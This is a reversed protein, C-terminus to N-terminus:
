PRVRWLRASAVQARPWQCGLSRPEDSRRLRRIARPPPEGRVRRSPKFRYQRSRPLWTARVGSVAAGERLPRRDRRLRRAAPGKVPRPRRGCECCRPLPAATVASIEARIAGACARAVRSRIPHTTASGLACLLPASPMQASGQRHQALAVRGNGGELRPRCGRLLFGLAVPQTKALNKLAGYCPLSTGFSLGDGFSLLRDSRGLCRLCCFRGAFPRSPTSLV